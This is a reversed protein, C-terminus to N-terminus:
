DGRLSTVLFVTHGRTINCDRLLCSHDLTRSGYIFRLDRPPWGMVNSMAAALDGVAWDDTVSVVRTRMMLDKVFLDYMGPIHQIAVVRTGTFAADLMARIPRGGPAQADTDAGLRVAVVLLDAADARDAPLATARVEHWPAMHGTLLTLTYGRIAVVCGRSFPATEDAMRLRAMGAQGGVVLNFVGRDVHGAQEELARQRRCVFEVQRSGSPSRADLSPLGPAYGERLATYIREAMTLLAHADRIPVSHAVVVGAGTALAAATDGM